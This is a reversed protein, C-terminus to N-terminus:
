LWIALVGLVLALFAGPIVATPATRTTLRAFVQVLVIV